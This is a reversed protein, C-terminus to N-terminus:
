KTKGLRKKKLQRDQPIEYVQNQELLSKIQQDINKIRLQVQLYTQYCDELVFIQAENWQGDLGKEM